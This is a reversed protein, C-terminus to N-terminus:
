LSINRKREEILKVRFISFETSSGFELFDFALFSFKSWILGLPARVEDNSM